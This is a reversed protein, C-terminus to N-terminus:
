PSKIIVERIKARKLSNLTPTTSIQTASYIPNTPSSNPGDRNFRAVTLPFAIQLIVVAISEDQEARHVTFPKLNFYKVHTAFLFGADQRRPVL